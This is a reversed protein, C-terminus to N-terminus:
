LNYALLPLEFSVQEGELHQLEGFIDVHLYATNLMSKGHISSIYVTLYDKTLYAYSLNQSYNPYDSINRSDDEHEHSWTAKECRISRETPHKDQIRKCSITLLKEHELPYRFPQSITFKVQFLLYGNVPIFTYEANDTKKTIEPRGESTKSKDVKIQKLESGSRKISM